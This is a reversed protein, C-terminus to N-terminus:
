WVASPVILAPGLERRPDVAARLAAVAPDLSEDNMDAILRTLREPSRSSIVPVVVPSATASWRALVASPEVGSASAVSRLGERRRANELGDFQHGGYVHAFYGASQSSWAIDPISREELWALAPADLSVQMAWDPAASAAALGFYNSVAALQMGRGGLAPDLALLRSLSWNSVGVSLALGEEVVARLIDAVDEVPTRDDDRHLLYLDAARGLAAASTRADSLVEARSLRSLWTAPDPHAGKTVIQLGADDGLGALLLGVAQESTGYIRATDLV